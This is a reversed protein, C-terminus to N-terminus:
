TLLLLYECLFVFSFAQARPLWVAFDLPVTGLVIKVESM